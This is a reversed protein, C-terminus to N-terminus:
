KYLQMIFFVSKVGICTHHMKPPPAMMSLKAMPMRCLKPKNCGWMIRSMPMVAASKENHREVRWCIGMVIKSFEVFSGFLMAKNQVWALQSFNFCETHAANAGNAGNLHLLGHM